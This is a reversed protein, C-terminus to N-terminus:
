EKEDADGAKGSHMMDFWARRREFFERKQEDTMEHWHNRMHGHHGGHIIGGLLMIGIVFGGSLIQGLLFLGVAQTFGIASWGCLGPILSNWLFMVAGAALSPLVVAWILLFFM